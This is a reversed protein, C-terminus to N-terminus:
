EQLVGAIEHYNNQHLILLDHDRRAKVTIPKPTFQQWKKGDDSPKLFIFGLMQSIANVPNSDWPTEMSPTVLAAGVEGKWLRALWTGISGGDVTQNKFATAILERSLPSYAQEPDRLMVYQKKLPQKEVILTENANFESIRHVKQSGPRFGYIEQTNVDGVYAGWFHGEQSLSIMTGVGHSQRRVFAKTGDLPDVTFFLISGNTCPVVLSDEEAIVGWTPFCERISRLYVRQAAKDASTLVDDMKGSYGEKSHVEFSQKQNRIEVIARRVLEKMIIGVAHGNIHGFITDDDRM